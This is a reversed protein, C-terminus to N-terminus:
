VSACSNSRSLIFGRRVADPTAVIVTIVRGHGQELAADGVAVAAAHGGVLERERGADDRVLFDAFGVFDPTSCAAQYIVETDRPIRPFYRTFSTESPPIPVAVKPAISSYAKSDM